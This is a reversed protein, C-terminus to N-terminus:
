DKLGCDISSHRLEALFEDVSQGKHQVIAQCRVRSALKLVKIIYYSDLNSILNNFSVTCLKNPLHLDALMRYATDEIVTLLTEKKLAVDFISKGQLYYTFRGKYTSWKISEPNYSGIHGVIGVVKAAEPM